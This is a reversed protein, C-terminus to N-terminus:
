ATPRNGKRRRAFFGIMPIGLALYLLANSEPVAVVPGPSNSRGNSHIGILAAPLLFPLLSSGGRGFAASSVAATPIPVLPQYVATTIESPVLVDMVDAPSLEQITPSVKTVPPLKNSVTRVQVSPLFHSLPNGCVWKMVPEGNRLAFVKTGRRFTQKVPFFKGSPRVCYVTYKGTSPIYSEVLNARMYSVVRSEPIQFHRAFRQRVAPNTSVQTILQDVSYVKYQLYSDPPTARIATHKAHVIHHAAQASTGFASLGVCALGVTIVASTQVTPRPM